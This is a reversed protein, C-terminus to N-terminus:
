AACTLQASRACPRDERSGAPLSGRCWATGVGSRLKRNPEATLPLSHTEFTNRMANVHSAFPKALRCTAQGVANGCVKNKLLRCNAAHINNWTAQRDNPPGAAIANHLDNSSAVAACSCSAPLRLWPCYGSRDPWIETCVTARTSSGGLPQTTAFAPVTKM